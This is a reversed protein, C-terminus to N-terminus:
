KNQQSNRYEIYSELPSKYNQNTNQNDSSKVDIYNQTAKRAGGMNGTYIMYGLLGIIGFIFYKM